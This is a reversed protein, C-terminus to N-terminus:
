LRPKNLPVFKKSIVEKLMEAYVADDFNLGSCPPKFGIQRVAAHYLLDYEPTGKEPLSAVALLSHILVDVTKTLDDVRMGQTTITEVMGDSDSLADLLDSELQAVYDSMTEHRFVGHMSIAAGGIGGEKETPIRPRRLYYSRLERARTIWNEITPKM